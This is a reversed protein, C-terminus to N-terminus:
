DTKIYKFKPKLYQVIDKDLEIFMFLSTIFLIIANTHVQNEDILLVYFLICLGIDSYHEYFVLSLFFFTSSVPLLADGCGVPSPQVTPLKGAQKLLKM